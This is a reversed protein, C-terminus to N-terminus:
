ACVHTALTGHFRALTVVSVYRLTTVGCSKHQGAQTGCFVVCTAARQRRLLRYSAGSRKQCSCLGQHRWLHACRLTSWRWSPCPTETSRSLFARPSVSPTSTRPRFSRKGQTFSLPPTSLKYLKYFEHIM